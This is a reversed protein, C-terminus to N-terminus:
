AAPEGGAVGDTGGDPAPQVGEGGTDPPLEGTVPGGSNENEAARAEAAALYVAMQQERRQMNALMLGQMYIIQDSEGRREHPKAFSVKGDDVFALNRGEDTYFYVDGESTVWVEMPGDAVFEITDMGKFAALHHVDGNPYVAQFSADTVANVELRVPRRGEGELAMVEDAPLVMWRKPDRIKIVM